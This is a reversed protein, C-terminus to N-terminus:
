FYRKLLNLIVKVGKNYPPYVMKTTTFGIRQKLVPKENSFALFGYKGHSKGIGSNNVGGFPLNPHAFQLVCDNICVGGASTARILHERRKKSRGFYYLALPKPKTNIMDIVQDFDDFEIVPLVPGFIEEEMIRADLPVDTLVTPTILREEELMKNGFAVAAGKQVADEVLNQLRSYHRHNVIRAYDELNEASQGGAFFLQKTKTNLAEILPEKVSKHVLVYDPAVCTQGNNMFKGWAIKEAADKVHANSDVVTPSKGGLELTVSTLHEAAAKMIIKGVAPSGTFFIHDFPFQLLDQSVTVDGTFVAVEEEKFIEGVMKDILESTHPTMESPKIMVTNGAAIASVLPGITLNFPFNWPAVILCVGKPEYRVHSVTSLYAVSSDVLIKRNWKKVHRLADKLETLVPYIETMDVEAAPKKFDKYISKQILYENKQIWDKLARLRQIRASLPETRQHQAQKNQAEFVKRARIGPSPDDSMIVRKPQQTCPIYSKFM